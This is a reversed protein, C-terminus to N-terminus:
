IMQESLINSRGGQWLDPKRCHKRISQGFIPGLFVLAHILVLFWFSAYATKNHRLSKLVSAKGQSPKADVKNELVPKTYVDM